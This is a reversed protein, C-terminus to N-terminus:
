KPAGEMAIMGATALLERALDLMPPYRTAIWGLTALGILGAAGYVIRRIHPHDELYSKSMNEKRKKEEDDTGNYKSELRVSIM